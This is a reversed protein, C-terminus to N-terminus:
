RRRRFHRWTPPSGQGCLRSDRSASKRYRSPQSPASSPRSHSPPCCHSPRKVWRRKCQTKQGMWQYCQGQFLPSTGLQELPFCPFIMPFGMEEACSRGMWTSERFFCIMGFSSAAALSSSQTVTGYRFITSLSM